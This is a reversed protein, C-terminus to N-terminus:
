CRPAHTCCCATCSTHEQLAWLVAAPLVCAMLLTSARVAMCPTMMGIQPPAQPELDYAAQKLNHNSSSSSSSSGCITSYYRAGSLQIPPVLHLLHHRHRLLKVEM